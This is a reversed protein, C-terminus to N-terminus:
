LRDFIAPILFPLALLIGTYICFLMFLVLSMMGKKSAPKEDVITDTGELAKLLLERCYREARCSGFHELRGGCSSVAIIDVVKLDNDFFVMYRRALQGHRRRDRYSFSVTKDKVNTKFNDFWNGSPLMMKTNLRDTYM